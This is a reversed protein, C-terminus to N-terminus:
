LEWSQINSYVQGDLPGCADDDGQEEDEKEKEEDPIDIDIDIVPPSYASLDVIIEQTCTTTTTFRKTNMFMEVHAIIM